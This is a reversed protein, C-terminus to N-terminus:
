ALAYIRGNFYFLVIAALLGLGKDTLFSVGLSFKGLEPAFNMPHLNASM